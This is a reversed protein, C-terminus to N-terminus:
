LDKKGGSICRDESAFKKDWIGPGCYFEDDWTAKRGILLSGRWTGGHSMRFCEQECIWYARDRMTKRLAGQITETKASTDCMSGETHSTYCWKFDETEGCIKTCINGDSQKKIRKAMPELWSDIAAEGNSYTCYPYNGIWRIPCIMVPDDRKELNRPELGTDTINFDTKHQLAYQPPALSAALAPTAHWCAFAFLLSRTFLM